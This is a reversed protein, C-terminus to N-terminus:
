HQKSAARASLYCVHQLFIPCGGWLYVNMPDRFRCNFLMNICTYQNLSEWPHKVEVLTKKYGVHGNELTHICELICTDYFKKVTVVVRYHGFM